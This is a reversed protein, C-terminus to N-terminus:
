STVKESAQTQETEDRNTSRGVGAVKAAGGMDVSDHLSVADFDKLKTEAGTMTGFDGDVTIAVGVEIDIDVVGVAMQDRRAEAVGIEFVEVELGTAVAGVANFDVVEAADPVGEV